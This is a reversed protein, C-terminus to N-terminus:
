SRGTVMSLFHGFVLLTAAAFLFLATFTEGAIYGGREIIRQVYWFRDMPVIAYVAGFPLALWPLPCRALTLLIGTGALGLVILEATIEQYRVSGEYVIKGAVGAWVDTLLALVFFVVAPIKLSKPFSFSYTLGHRAKEFRRFARMLYILLVLLSMVRPLYLMLFGPAAPNMYGTYISMHTNLGWWYMPYSLLLLAPYLLWPLARALLSMLLSLGMGIIAGEEAGGRYQVTRLASLLAEKVAPFGGAFRVSALSYVAMGFVGMLALVLALIWPILSPNKRRSRMTGMVGKWQEDSGM